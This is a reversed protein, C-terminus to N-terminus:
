SVTFHNHFHFHILNTVNWQMNGFKGGNKSALIRKSTLKFSLDAATFFQLEFAMRLTAATKHQNQRRKTFVLRIAGAVTSIATERTLSIVVWTM